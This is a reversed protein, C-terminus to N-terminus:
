WDEDIELGELHKQIRLLATTNSMKGRRVQALERDVWGIVGRFKNNEETLVENQFELMGVTPPTEENDMIEKRQAGLLIRVRSGRM